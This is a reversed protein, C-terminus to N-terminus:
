VAEAEAEEPLLAEGAVRMLKQETKGLEGVTRNLDERSKRLGGLLDEVTNRKKDDNYGRFIRKMREEILECSAAVDHLSPVIASEDEAPLDELRKFREFKLLHEHLEKRLDLPVSSDALYGRLLALYGDFRHKSLEALRDECQLLYLVEPLTVGLEVAKRLSGVAAQRQREDRACYYDVLGGLLYPDGDKPMTERATDLRRQLAEREKVPLGKKEPLRRFWNYFLSVAYWLTIAPLMGSAESPDKSKAAEVKVENLAAALQSDIDPRDQQRWECLLLGIRPLLSSQGSAEASKHAAEFRERAVHAKEKEKDEFLASMALVMELDALQEPVQDPFVGLEKVKKFCHLARECQDRSMAQRALELYVIGVVQKGKLFGALRPTHEFCIREAEDWRKEKVTLWLQLYLAEVSTDESDKLVLLADAYRGLRAKVYALLFRTETLYEPKLGANLAQNLLAEAKALAADGGGALLKVADLLPRAKRRPQLVLFWLVGGSIVLILGGIVAFVWLPVPPPKPVEAGKPSDGPSPSHNAAADTQPGEVVDTLGQGSAPANHAAAAVQQVVSEVGGKVAFVQWGLLRLLVMAEVAEYSGDDVVLIPRNRPFRQLTGPAFMEDLSLRQSGKLRFKAFEGAPRLDLITPRAPKRLQEAAQEPTLIFGKGAAQRSQAYQSASQRLVGADQAAVAACSVGVAIALISGRM